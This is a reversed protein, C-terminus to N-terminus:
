HRVKKSDSDLVDKSRRKPSPESSAPPTSPAAPPEGNNPTDRHISSSDLMGPAFASSSSSQNALLGDVYSDLEEATLDGMDIGAEQLLKKTLALEQAQSPGMAAVVADLEDVATARKTGEVAKEGVKFGGAAKVGDAFAQQYSDPSLLEIIDDVTVELEVTKGELKVEDLGKRKAEDLAALLTAPGEFRSIVTTLIGCRETLKAVESANFKVLAAEREKEAKIRNRRQIVGEAFTGFNTRGETLDCQIGAANLNKQAELLDANNEEISLKLKEIGKETKARIDLSKYSKLMEEAKQETSSKHKNKSGAPRPM